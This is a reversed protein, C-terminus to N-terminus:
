IGLANRVAALQDIGGITRVMNPIDVEHVVESGHTLKYYRLAMVVKLTAKEGPKWNGPDMERVIGQLNVVVATQTGSDSVVAGRITLPTLQGPALGFLKLVQKDFRTLTFECELKEMGMEVEIPADMGGNRFEETKLTLKPLTLEEVNGAYGRGDVFLAMNKLIDDLM